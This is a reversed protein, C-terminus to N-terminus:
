AREIGRAAAIDAIADPHIEPARNAPSFVVRCVGTQEIDLRQLRGGSTM